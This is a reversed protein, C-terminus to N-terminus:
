ARFGAAHPDGESPTSAPAALLEWRSVDVTRGGVEQGELRDVRRFGAKMAVRDSAANGVITTLTLRELRLVSLAWDSVLVVAHTAFGKNRAGRAMWYGIQATRRELDFGALGISGAFTGSGADAIALDIAAGSRRQEEQGRIWGSAHDISYPLQLSTWRGIEPDQIADAVAQADSMGFARLAVTGDELPPDPLAIAPM